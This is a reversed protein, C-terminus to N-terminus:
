IEGDANAAGLALERGAYTERMEAGEPKKAFKKRIDIVDAQSWFDALVAMSGIQLMRNVIAKPTLPEDGLVSATEGSDPEQTLTVTPTVFSQTHEVAGSDNGEGAGVTVENTEVSEFAELRSTPKPLEPLSGVETHEGEVIEGTENDVVTRQVFQAMDVNMPLRKSLRHIAVKKAMQGYWNTWAPGDKSRSFSRAKEIDSRPVVEREITGDKFTAVAYAYIVEGRKGDKPWEHELRETDGLVYTFHDGECVEHATLGVVDGQRLKKIVGQVMPMWQVAKVWAEGGDRKVKTNFVVFAGERGDPLLGDQAARMSATLLTQRDAQVLDPNLAIATQVANRFRGADIHAPLATKYQPEMQILTAKLVEIPKATLATTM